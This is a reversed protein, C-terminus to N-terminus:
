CRHCGPNAHSHATTSEASTKGRVLHLRNDIYMYVHHHVPKKEERTGIRENRVDKKFIEAKM